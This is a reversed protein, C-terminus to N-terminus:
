KFLYSKVTEDRNVFWKIYNGILILSFEWFLLGGVCVCVVLVMIERTTEIQAGHAVVTTKIQAAWGSAHFYNFLNNM